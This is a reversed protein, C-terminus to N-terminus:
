RTIGATLASRLWRELDAPNRGRWALHGDPRVLLVDGSGTPELAVVHEGLLEASAHGVVAWHGRLETHLRTRAGDRLCEFDRVRDGPRPRPGRGSGLPGRRYSVLLQSAINTGARQVAPLKLLPTLVRDRAFRTVAGGGLLVKTNFTTGRLVEEALPRREAEYTDLLAPSATGDVVLALKWALNEADGIGTNMGQGGFPSHIHAADGALLVRGNRYTEALRRHIRFSSVWKADRIRVGAQGTREVLLRRMRDVIEGDGLRNGSLPVDCMLRWLDDRGGPERMPMAVFLGDRHLWGASGSRDRDWDAHVDALLWQDALPVGPFGIGALERVRSHAGDCGALWGTRVTEGTSLTATVGDADQVADVVASDWEVEVGLEALRRRLEAEIEAQSVLLASLQAGEVEGFRITAVPSGDLHMTLRMAAVSRERLDGLAGLRNLVEVGRAHLINARSTTAPGAARDVVRVATGHQRLGCALALGAPGAGAVLVGM